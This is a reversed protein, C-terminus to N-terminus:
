SRYDKIFTAKLQLLTIEGSMLKKILEELTLGLARLLKLANRNDLHRPSLEEGLDKGQVLLITINIVQGRSVIQNWNLVGQFPLLGGGLGFNQGVGGFGSIVGRGLHGTIATWNFATTERARRYKPYYIREFAQNALGNREGALALQWEYHILKGDPYFGEHLKRNQPEQKKALALWRRALDVKRAAIEWEYNRRASAERTPSAFRTPDINRSTAWRLFGQESSEYEDAGSSYYVPNPLWSLGWPDMKNSPDNSFAEYQGSVRKDDLYGQMESAFISQQYFGLKKRRKVISLPDRQIFIGLNSAYVRSPSLLLKGGSDKLSIWSSAYKFRSGVGPYTESEYLPEGWSNYLYDGVVNGSEDTLKYVTGRHDYAPYQYYNAGDVTKHATVMSGVGNVASYGHTYEATVTGSIDREELLNLGGQDWTFYRLGDSDILAQRRLLGDYYFYNERGDKYSIRTVLDAQNFEFYINGDSEQIAICNGRSDYHYYSYAGDFQLCDLSNDANYYYYTEGANFNQYIRNGVSDYDWTFAYISTMGSDYWDESTLRSANDYGYYITTGDERVCRTIRSAKDYTYNFYVLPSGDPM